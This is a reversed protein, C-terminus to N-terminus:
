AGKKPRATEAKFAAYADAPVGTNGAREMWFRRQEESAHNWWAMGIKEDPTPEREDTM